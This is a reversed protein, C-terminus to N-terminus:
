LTIQSAILVANIMFNGYDHQTVLHCIELICFANTSMWSWEDVRFFKNQMCWVVEVGVVMPDRLYRTCRSLNEWNERSERSKRERERVSFFIITEHVMWLSWTWDFRNLQLILFDFRFLHSFLVRFFLSFLLSSIILRFYMIFHCHITGIQNLQYWLEHLKSCTIMQNFFYKNERHLKFNIDCNLLFWLYSFFLEHFFNLRSLSDSGFTLAPYKKQRSWRSDMSCLLNNSVSPFRRSAFCSLFIFKKHESFNRSFLM